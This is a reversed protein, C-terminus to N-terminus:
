YSSLPDDNCSCLRHANYCVKALNILMLMRQWHGHNCNQLIGDLEQKRASSRERYYKIYRDDTPLLAIFTSQALASKLHIYTLNMCTECVNQAVISAPIDGADIAEKSISDIQNTRCLDFV